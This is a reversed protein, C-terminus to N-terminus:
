CISTNEQVSYCKMVTQAEVIIIKGYYHKNGSM